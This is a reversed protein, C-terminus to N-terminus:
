SQSYIVVAVLMYEWVASRQRPTSPLGQAAITLGSRVSGKMRSTSSRQSRWPLSNRISFSCKAWAM